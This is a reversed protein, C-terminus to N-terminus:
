ADNDMKEKTDEAADEIAEGTAEVDQGFGATTNCGYLGVTLLALLAAIVVKNDILKNM